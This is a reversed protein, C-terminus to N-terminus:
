FPRSKYRKFEDATIAFFQVRDGTNYRCPNEKEPEFIPLPTRGIINWGGPADVPYIGTQRGAIGVSGATVRVPQQKRPFAISDSVEGMYPFGPLFGTMYVHYINRTHVEIVKDTSIGRSRALASLDPAYPLEYCVPIGVPDGAVTEEHFASSQLLYELEHIIFDQASSFMGKNRFAKIVDYYVAVSAYAAVTETVSHIGASRIKKQFRAIFLNLERDIVNGFDILVANDGLGHISYSYPFNM